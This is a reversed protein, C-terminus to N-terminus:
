QPHQEQHEELAGHVELTPPLAVQSASSHKVYNAGCTPCTEEPLPTYQFRPHGLPVLVAFALVVDVLGYAVAAVITWNSWPARYIMYATFGTVALYIIGYAVFILVTFALSIRPPRWLKRLDKFDVKAARWVLGSDTHFTACPVSHRLDAELRQLHVSRILTADTNLTMFCAVATPVLPALLFEAITTHNGDVFVFAAIMYTFAATAMTFALVLGTSDDQREIAYVKLLDQPDQREIM